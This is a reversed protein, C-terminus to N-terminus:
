GEFDLKETFVTNTYLLIKQLIDDFIIMWITDIVVAGPGPTWTSGIFGCAPERLEENSLTM